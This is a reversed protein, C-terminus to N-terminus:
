KFQDMHFIVSWEEAKLGTSTVLFDMTNVSYLPPGRMKYVVRYLLFWKASKYYNGLVPGNGINQLTDRCKIQKHILLQPM